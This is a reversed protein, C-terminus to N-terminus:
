LFVLLFFTLSTRLAAVSKLSLVQLRFQALQFRHYISIRIPADAPRGNAFELSPLPTLAGPELNFPRPNSDGCSCRSISKEPSNRKHQSM